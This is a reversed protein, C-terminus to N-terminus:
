SGPIVGQTTLRIRYLGTRATMYLSRGDDGWGVNAPVEDPRITGLHTGDPTFVWVGGPGTAFLNGEIDVKLGDAAGEAETGTVDYFVRPNSLGDARVDYAMWVAEASDSNAVYLTAEDPSLAIGNPRSQERYLLQLEGNPHLRYIGNFDLERLPSSETGALGYPPDTFYLSGDSAYVADNPSNLRHGDYNDALITRTGDAEIRAVQRNGHECMVLRGEADLTLGNSSLSGLGTEDGEFVPRMFVSVGDSETWQYITNTRIDSFLLTSEDRVWVPGEIFQFGDALKEISADAPILENLRDDIRDVVGASPMGVTDVEELPMDPEMPAPGCALLFLGLGFVVITGPFRKFRM